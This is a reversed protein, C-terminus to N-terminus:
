EKAMIDVSSIDVLHLFCSNVGDGRNVLSGAFLETMNLAHRFCFYLLNLHTHKKTIRLSFKCRIQKFEILFCCLFYHGLLKTHINAPTVSFFVVSFHAIQQMFMAHTIITIAVTETHM